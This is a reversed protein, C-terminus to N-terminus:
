LVDGWVNKYLKGQTFIYLRADKPPEVFKKDKKESDRNTKVSGAIKALCSDISIDKDIFLFVNQSQDLADIANSGVKNRGGRVHKMEITSDIFYCDPHKGDGREPLMFIDAGSEKALTHAMMNDSEYVEKDKAGDEKRASAVYVYSNDGAKESTWTENPFLKQIAKGQEGAM